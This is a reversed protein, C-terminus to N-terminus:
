QVLLKVTENYNEATLTIMYLGAPLNDVLTSGTFQQQSVLAGTISRITCTYTTSANGTITVSQGATLPNPFITITSEPTQDIDVTCTSNISNSYSELTGGNSTRGLTKDNYSITLLGCIEETFQLLVQTKDGERFYGVTFEAAEGNITATIEEALPLTEILRDYTLVLQRKDTRQIQARTVNAGSPNAGKSIEFYNLNPKTTIMKFTIMQKGEPLEVALASNNWTSAPAYLDYSEGGATIQIIGSSSGSHRLSITYVGAEAVDISYGFVNNIEVFGFQLNGDKDNTKEIKMSTSQFFTYDEIEIRTTNETIAVPALKPNLNNTIEQGAINDM